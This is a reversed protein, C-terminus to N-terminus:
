KGFFTKIKNLDDEDLVVDHYCLHKGMIYRFAEAIRHPFPVKNDANILCLWLEGDDFSTIEIYHHGGCHCPIILKKSM